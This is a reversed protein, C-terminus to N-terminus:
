SVSDTLADIERCGEAEYIKEIESQQKYKIPDRYGADIFGKLRLNSSPTTADAIENGSYCTYTDKFPVELRVGEEVISKKSMTLLPASIKVRHRRNLSILDNLKNIFTEEADWYGALSDAEAAGYWVDNIGNSEAYACCATLFLQNRFPVYSAPQAEGAMELINPNDIDTNTLSSTTAITNLVRMDILKNTVEVNFKKKVAETQKAVCGIELIHRQGYNFTIAHIHNYHEAAKFLLVASDM